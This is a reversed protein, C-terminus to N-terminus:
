WTCMGSAPAWQAGWRTAHPGFVRETRTPGGVVRPERMNLRRRQNKSPDGHSAEM